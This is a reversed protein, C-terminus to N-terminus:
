IKYNCFMKYSLQVGRLFICIKLSRDNNEIIFFVQESKMNEIEYLAKLDEQESKMNEIKYLAKLDKEGNLIMEDTRSLEDQVRDM